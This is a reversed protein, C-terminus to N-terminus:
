QAAIQGRKKSRFIERLQETEPLGQEELKLLAAEHGKSEAELSLIEAKRLLMMRIRERHLRNTYDQFTQVRKEDPQQEIQPYRKSLLNELHSLLSPELYSKLIEIDNYKLWKLYIELNESRGFDNASIQGHLKKLEPFQLLIGLCDDEIKNSTFFAPNINVKEELEGKQKPNKKSDKKLKNIIDIIYNEKINIVESFRHIYVGRRVPDDFKLIVPLFNNTAALKDDPNDLNYNQKIFDLIFDVLPIANKLGQKWVTHDHKIIEDPDKGGATKVVKIDVNLFNEASISEAIRKTAEEGALDADLALTINKTLRKIIRLQSDTLATGMTAVTNEWGYQHSTLVDMYGETIIVSNNQRISSKAIDIGYLASSKDFVITQPSNIYKPLTDDLSRAGFGIIKSQSDRIPFVLRNRFRDYLSGDERKLALGAMIIDSNKYGRNMLYKCLGEFDSHCYGLLFRQTIESFLGRTNIYERAHIGIKNGTLLQHYYNAAVENIELVIERQSLEISDRKIPQDVIIGLKDALFRLAQGFDMGEKKMVFSYVDGGTGCAGFCHWTQQEPFIFFSPTKESHFPCLAKYNRGSKQLKVYGSILEVIDTKQKVEDIVSM